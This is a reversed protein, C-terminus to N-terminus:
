RAGKQGKRGTNKHREPMHSSPTPLEAKDSLVPPHVVPNVPPSKAKLSKKM